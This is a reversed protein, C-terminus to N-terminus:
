LAIGSAFGHGLQNRYLSLMCTYNDRNYNYTPPWKYVIHMETLTYTTIYIHLDLDTFLDDVCYSLM